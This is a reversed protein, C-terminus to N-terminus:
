WANIVGDNNLNNGDVVGDIGEGSVPETPETPETGTPETGTPDTQSPETKNSDTTGDSNGGNNKTTSETPEQKPATTSPETTVPVEEGQENTVYPQSTVDGIKYEGNKNTEEPKVFHTEGGYQIGDVEYTPDTYYLSGNEDTSVSVLDDAEKKKCAAFVGVCFVILCIVAFIRIKGSNM